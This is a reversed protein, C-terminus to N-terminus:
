GGGRRCPWQARGVRWTVQEGNGSLEYTEGRTYRFGDGGDAKRLRITPQRIRNVTATNNADDFIVRLVTNTSCTYSQYRREAATAPVVSLALALAVSAFALRRKM